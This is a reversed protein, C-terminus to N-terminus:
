EIVFTKDVQKGELQLKVIYFGSQLDKVPIKLQTEGLVQGEKLQKGLKNVISWRGNKYSKALRITLVEVVPNPFLRFINDTLERTEVTQELPTHSHDCNRHNHMTQRSNQVIVNGGYLAQIESATLSKSWLKVESLKGNHRNDENDDKYRGITFWGSPPYLIAGSQASTSSKLQGNVYLRMSSGDYTAALHYWQGLTFDAIDQLYTLNGGNASALGFSFRRGRTGLVWGREYSGNDQMLGAFGGWTDAVDVKVWTAITMTNAPLGNAANNGSQIDIYGNNDFGAVQGRAADNVFSVGSVTGNLDDSWSNVANAGLPYYAVKGNTNGAYLQEIEKGDLTRQWIRMDDLGGDHRFDENDDKYRGIDFWGSPPYDINGSQSTSTNRQQGNIYLRITTGDYSAAVHYWQGLAFDSIDELYTMSSNGTGALAFSFRRGRTGLIWGKEYFGNDQVFGVFGGWGDAADVKVWTAVTINKTPLNNKANSGSQVTIYASNNFDAIQSNRTADNPYTVGTATGNMGNGSADSANGDFMYHAVLQDAIDNVRIYGTKTKTNTGAANSVTLSVAYTGPTNYSVTPNPVNSAAPVGGEFSWSWTTPVNVSLDSFNISQGAGIQTQSATFDAVPATVQTNVNIAKGDLNWAPDIALQMHHMATVPVDIIHLGSLAQKIGNTRSAIVFIRREEYSSGGHGTGRGGHDTSLIIMWDESAYTPRAKIANVMQGVYSDEQEIKNLYTQNTPSFGTSHGAGDVEDLHVFMADPNQGSLYSVVANTVDADSSYKQSYDADSRVINDNIPNWHAMSVTHLNPNSDELRKIFTPYQGFNTSTFSNNTVKHKNSWVGTIMSTWGPGSYTPYQTEAAYSYASHRVLADINPTNAAMLADARTGDIGIILVKRTQAQTIQNNSLCLFILGYILYFFQKTM